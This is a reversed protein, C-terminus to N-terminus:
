RMLVRAEADRAVQSATVTVARPLGDGCVLGMSATGQPSVLPARLEDERRGDFVVDMASSIDDLYLYMRM